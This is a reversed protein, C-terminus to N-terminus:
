FTYNMNVTVENVDYSQGSLNSNRTQYQYALSGTLKKTFQRQLSIGVIIVDAIETSGSLSKLHTWGVSPALTMYRNLRRALTYNFGTTEQISSNELGLTIGPSHFFSLTHTTNPRLPHTYSLSVAADVGDISQVGNTKTAALDLHSWGLSVTGNLSKTIQGNLGLDVSYGTSDRLTPDSLDNIGYASRIFVSFGERFFYAPTFSFVYDVQELSPDSPYFDDTRQAAFTASFKGLQRTASASATNVYQDVQAQNAAFTTGLPDNQYTFTDSLVVSWEAVYIPLVLAATLPAGFSDGQVGTVSHSYTAALTLTFEEGGAFPLFVGGSLTPGVTLLVDAKPHNESLNANDRFDAGAMFGLNLRFPGTQINQAVAPHAGALAWLIWLLFTVSRRLRHHQRM